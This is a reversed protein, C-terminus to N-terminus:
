ELLVEGVCLSKIGEWTPQIVGKWDAGGTVKDVFRNKVVKVQRTPPSNEVIEVYLRLDSQFDARAYGDRQRGEKWSVQKGEDNTISKYLDKMQSTLVLNKGYGGKSPEILNKEATIKYIADVDVIDRIHGYEIQLARVRTSKQQALYVPSALKQLELSNDIIVTKIKDDNGALKIHNTLESWSRARAYNLEPNPVGKQKQVKVFVSRSEGKPTTDIMFPSPFLSAFHTKGTGTEGIIETM